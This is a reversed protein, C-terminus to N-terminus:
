QAEEVPRVEREFRAIFERVPAYTADTATEFRSLEMRQLIARGEPSRHLGVFARRLADVTKPPLDDRAVLSNNLLASTEWKVQLQAALEPHDKQFARWPLPWTVGASTHGLVANMISSEQTRVYRSDIQRPVDIGHTHLFWQPLLTAALATPAPFSVSKGILDRPERIASDRRVLFVGRFNADDGMKAFVDYGQDLSKLTQYPNPLALEVQRAALKREFAAYDASAELRLRVGPVQKNLHDVLPQYVEFLRKPNHLPHVAFVYEAVQATAPAESYGPRYATDNDSSTCGPVLAALFLVAVGARM